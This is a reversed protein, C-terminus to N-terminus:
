LEKVQMAVLKEQMMMGKVEVTKGALAKLDDLSIHKPPEKGNKGGMGDLPNGNPPNGGGFGAPPEGGAPAKGMGGSPPAPPQGAKGGKGNGDPAPMVSLTYVVGDSATLAVVDGDVRIVGTVTLVKMSGNPAGMPAGNGDPKGQNMAAVPTAYQMEIGALKGGDPLLITRGHLYSNAKENKNYFLTHGNSKINKYSSNELDLVNVYSDATLTLQAKKALNLNVKGTNAANIACTYKTGNGLTLSVSSIADVVVNGNLVQNEATFSLTGGNAGKRGWGRKSENGSALVLVDNSNVIKSNKLSVEANTNTVYFFPGNATSTLTSDVVSFKSTGQNADGSMSQYLMVAAHVDEEHGKGGAVGGTLTSKEIKISNKGEIVAIESGTAMGTLNRVSIDGTSYIVPSGEGSTRAVGGNVTVTGEGRDTAFAACHAGETTIDVKDATIMGGYTADLGRSSNAHTHIKINKISVVSGDGTSFVANAGDADTTVTVNQLVLESGGQTIVAANLGYFNSQGGNSSNGGVKEFVTKLAQASAGDKVLLVSQDAKTTRLTEAGLTKGSNAGNVVVQATLEPVQEDPVTGFGDPPLGEASGNMGAPPMGGNGMPPPFKGSDGAPEEAYMCAAAILAVAVFSLKKM